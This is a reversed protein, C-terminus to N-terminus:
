LSSTNAMFLFMAESMYEDGTGKDEVNAHDRIVINCREINHYCGSWYEDVIYNIPQITAIDLQRIVDFISTTSTRAYIRANDSRLETVAWERYLAGQMGNYCGILSAYLEEENRNFNDSSINSVHKLELFDSCSMVLCVGLVGLIYKM